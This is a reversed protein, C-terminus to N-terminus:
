WFWDLPDPNWSWLDVSASKPDFGLDNEVSVCFPIISIYNMSDAGTQNEDSYVDLETDANLWISKIANSEDATFNIKSDGVVKM